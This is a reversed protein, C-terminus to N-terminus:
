CDCLSLNLPPILTNTAELLLSRHREIAREITEIRERRSGASKFTMMTQGLDRKIIEFQREFEAQQKSLQKLEAKESYMDFLVRGEVAVALLLILLATRDFM